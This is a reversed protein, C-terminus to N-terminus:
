GAHRMFVLLCPRGALASSHFPRPKGITLTPAEAPVPAAGRPLCPRAVAAECPIATASFAPLTSGPALRRHPLSVATAGTPPTVGGPEAGSGLLGTAGAPAEGSALPPAPSPGEEVAATRDTELGAITNNVAQTVAHLGAEAAALASAQARSASGSRSRRLLALLLDWTPVASALLLRKQAGILDGLAKARVAASPSAAANSHESVRRVTLRAAAVYEAVAELVDEADAVPTMGRSREEHTAGHEATAQGVAAGSGAVDCAGTTERGSM